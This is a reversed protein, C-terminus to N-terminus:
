SRLIAALEVLAAEMAVASDVARDGKMAGETRGLLTVARELREAGYKKATGIALKLPYGKKEGLVEVVFDETVKSAGYADVLASIRYALRFKNNLVVLTVLPHSSKSSRRFTEVAKTMDNDMLAREVNWPATGGKSQPLRIEMDAVTLRQQTKAPLDSVTRVLSILSEYDDGVYDILFNQVDRSLSIESLLALAAKSKDKKEAPTLGFVEGGRSKVFEQIKKTSNGPLDSVVILGLGITSEFSNDAEMEKLAQKLEETENVVLIHALTDGFLTAGGAETYKSINKIETQPVGWSSLIENKQFSIYSDSKELILALNM